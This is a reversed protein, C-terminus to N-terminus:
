RSVFLLGGGLVILLVGLTKVIMPQIRHLKHRVGPRTIFCAMWAFWIFSVVIMWIAFIGQQWLPTGPGIALTFLGLFFLTAKPNLLNCFFGQRIAEFISIMHVNSKASDGKTPQRTATLSKIGIYILYAAGLYKLLNFILTSQMIILALGLVCYTIHVATGLAIGLATYVAERRPYLLANRTVMAFDPGPSAMALFHLSAITSFTLFFSQM